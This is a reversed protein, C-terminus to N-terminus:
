PRPPQSAVTLQNHALSLAASAGRNGGLATKDFPLKQKKKLFCAREKKRFLVLFDEKTMRARQKVRPAAESPSRRM